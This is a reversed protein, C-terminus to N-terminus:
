VDHTSEQSASSVQSRRARQQLRQAGAADGQALLLAALHWLAEQHDPQLYLAKRYLQLAKDIDQAADCLIGQLCYV